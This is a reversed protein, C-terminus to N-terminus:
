QLSTAMQSPNAIKRNDIGSAQRGRRNWENKCAGASRNIGQAQLQRSMLEFLRVDHLIEPRKGNPGIPANHHARVLAILAQLETNTWGKARRSAAAAQAPNAPASAALNTATQTPNAATSTNLTTATQPPNPLTTTVLTTVPTAANSFSAHPTDSTSADLEDDMVASMPKTTTSGSQFVGITNATRSTLSGLEFADLFGAQSNNTRRGTKTITQNVNPALKARGAGRSFGSRRGQPGPNFSEDESDDSRDQHKKKAMKEPGCTNVGSKRGGKRSELARGLSPAPAASRHRKFPPEEDDDEDEENEEYNERQRKMATKEVNKTTKAYRDKGSTKGGTAAEMGGVPQAGSPRTKGGRQPHGSDGHSDDSTGSTSPNAHTHDTMQTMPSSSANRQKSLKVRLDRNERKLREIEVLLNGNELEATQARHLAYELATPGEGEVEGGDEVDEEANDREGEVDNEEAKDPEGYRQVTQLLEEMKELISNNTDQVKHLRSEVSKVKKQLRCIQCSYDNQCLCTESRPVFNNALTPKLQM